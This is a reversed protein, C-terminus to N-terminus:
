YEKKLCASLQDNINLGPPQNFKQDQDALKKVEEKM